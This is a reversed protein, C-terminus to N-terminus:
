KAAFYLVVRSKLLEYRTKTEADALRKARISAFGDLSVPSMQMTVTDNYQQGTTDLIAGGDLVNCYHMEEIGDGRVKYRMLEGGLYDQVVLSSVVCQGRAPNQANWESKMFCTDPGWAAHLTTLLEDLPPKIM